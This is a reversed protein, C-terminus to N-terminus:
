RAPTDAAAARRRRRVVRAVVLVVGGLIAFFVIWPILVGVVVLFGGVFAVFSEWGTVLGSAFTDPADVPADAESTFSLEITSMTVQDALSRQEAEMSELTGQRDAIATELEILDKTTSAKELLALLREISTRSATIRAALDESQRTVDDTQLAVQEVEGLAKIADLTATLSESPIRLTLSASGKDGDVPAYEQRADIRGGASEVITVAESAAAAPDEATIYVSGTTIVQRSADSDLSAAGESTAAEDVAAPAQAYDSGGGSDSASQGTSATCGAMTLASLLVITPVLIRRM